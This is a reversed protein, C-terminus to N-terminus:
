TEVPSVVFPYVMMNGALNFEPPGIRGLIEVRRPDIGLEEQTERLAANVLTSDTEDVRGGPFSIEGSHSRLTKARVELLLGPENDVNCFPILVAANRTKKDAQPSLVAGDSHINNKLLNRIAQLTNPTFPKTLPIPTTSALSHASRTLPRVAM